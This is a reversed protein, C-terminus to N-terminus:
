TRLSLVTSGIRHGVGVVQIRHNQLPPKRNLLGQPSLIQLSDGHTGRNQGTVPMNGTRNRVYYKRGEERINIAANVDRDMRNGCSCKYIRESLKLEKKVAGCKSCTKSSPYFRDTKVLKKGQEGLKYELMGLFMGYGDDMVSKGLHLSRSMAKMNLDEVCVADYSDALKRSLKHQFDRRQNRIKEHCVAVKKRQKAYNRSGKECHSLIRQERSLKKESKRYYMPYEAKSGDSFVAMGSMAFDIGLIKEALVEKISIQNEYTYLLSAYYKGSPEQNVTVSKLRYNEPIERHQIIKILSMKPLKLKGGELRVNGNVVNTTFSRRSKHKSKFKPFGSQPNRFFNQYAKELHLQVNALALSDVEKLWPYEKKYSAPTNKLMKKNKQYEQIKDELMINYLFRCCGFTRALQEEQEKNPYIRIKIAKNM